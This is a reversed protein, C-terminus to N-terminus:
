KSRVEEHYKKRWEEARDHAEFCQDVLGSIRKEQKECRAELTNREEVLLAIRLRLAEVDVPAVVTHEVREFPPYTEDTIKM